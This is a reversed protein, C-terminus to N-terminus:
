VIPAVVKPNVQVAVPPKWVNVSGLATPEVCILPTFLVGPVQDTGIGVAAAPRM